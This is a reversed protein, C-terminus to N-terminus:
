IKNDSSLSLLFDFTYIKLINKLGADIRFLVIYLLKKEIPTNEM